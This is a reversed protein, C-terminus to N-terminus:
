MFELKYHKLLVNSSVLNKKSLRKEKMLSNSCFFGKPVSPLNTM